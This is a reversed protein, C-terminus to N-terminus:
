YNSKLKGSWAVAEVEMLLDPILLANIIVTTSAPSEKQFLMAKVEAYGQYASKDTLFCRLSVIDRLSAGAEALAATINDFCQRAQVAPDGIGVVKGDELAVQGSVIIWDGCRVAQSMGPFSMGPPDFRGVKSKIPGNM